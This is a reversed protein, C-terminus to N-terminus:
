RHPMIPAPVVDLQDPIREVEEVDTQNEEQYEAESDPNDTNFLDEDSLDLDLYQDGGSQALDHGISTENENFYVDRSLLVKRTPMMCGIGKPKWGM